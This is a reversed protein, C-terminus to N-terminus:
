VGENDMRHLRNQALRASVSNPYQQKVQLLLTRAENWQGQQYHVFGLKLLADAAKQHEPFNQVVKQFAQSAQLWQDQILHLEGLWYYANPTYQSHPKQQVFNEFQQRAKSYQKNQLLQYAENYQEAETASSHFDSPKTGLSRTPEIPKYSKQKQTAVGPKGTLQNIQEKLAALEEQHSTRSVQLQYDLEEVKGRLEQVEYQLANVKKFWQLLKNQRAQRETDQVESVAPRSGLEISDVEPLPRPEAFASGIFVPALFIVHWKAKM